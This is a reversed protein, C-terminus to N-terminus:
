SKKPLQWQSARRARGCVRWASLRAALKSLLVLESNLRLRGLVKCKGSTFTQLNHGRVFDALNEVNGGGGLSDWLWVGM